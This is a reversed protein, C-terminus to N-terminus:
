EKAAKLRDATSINVTKTKRNIKRMLGTLVRNPGVEWFTDCGDAIMREVCAQWRVPNFVQRYLAERISAPEGHYGGDVNAAVPCTPKKFECDDLEPKLGEAASCMLQSHFAGAVQLPVAKGDFEECLTAAQECAAKDGSIVIQGPCNFNSPGVKGAAAVRECLALVKDEAIGMISAMGGPKKDCAEQMLVGRRYVLRLADEFSLTGAM